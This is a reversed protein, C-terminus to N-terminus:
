GSLRCQCDPSLIKRVSLVEKRCRLRNKFEHVVVTTRKGFDRSIKLNWQRELFFELM